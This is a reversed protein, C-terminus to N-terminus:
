AAFIAVGLGNGAFSGWAENLNGVLLRELRYVIPEAGGNRCSPPSVERRIGGPFTSLAGIVARPNEATIEDKWSASVRLPIKDNGPRAEPRGRSWIPGNMGGFRRRLSLRSRSVVEAGSLLLARRM